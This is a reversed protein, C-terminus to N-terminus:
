HSNLFIVSEFAGAIKTILSEFGLPKFRIFTNLVGILYFNPSIKDSLEFKIGSFLKGM